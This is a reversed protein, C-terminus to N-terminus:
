PKVKGIVDEIRNGGRGDNPTVRDPPTAVIICRLKHMFDLLRDEGYVGVLREHLWMLFERDSM